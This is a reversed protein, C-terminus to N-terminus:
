ERSIAGPGSRVQSCCFATKTQFMVKPASRSNSHAGNRWSRRKLVASVPLDCAQTPFPPELPKQPDLRWAGRITPTRHAGLPGLHCREEASPHPRPKERGGRSGTLCDRLACYARVTPPPHAAAAGSSAWSIGRPPRTRPRTAMAM